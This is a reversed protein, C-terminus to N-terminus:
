FALIKFVYLFVISSKPVKNFVFIKFVLIELVIVYRRNITKFKIKFLNYM